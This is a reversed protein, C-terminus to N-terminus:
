LSTGGLDKLMAHFEAESLVAVGLQQAKTLKSGAEEGALLYDTKKSVSASVKGGNREILAKAEQRTYGSLTGTLVFTKGSFAAGAEEVPEEFNLGAARLREILTRSQENRFYDTVSEAMVGGFGDIDSVEEGSAALIADMTRFRRALLQAAREGINRIGLGFLLRSLPNQRSKAIAEVLNRASTEAFRELGALQEVTLSYLDAPSAVLGTEVLQDVAAPGLGEIDMAGRSAFHILNRRLTAPCSPNICRIVADERVTESHCVPCEMPIFYPKSGEAHSVSRLVEPIIEGAKRVLITDGIRLDKETIFDQNHLVARSVTTGALTIPDFSATPTCAGTRGVQIVIERLVTEKEEPPYKFAVAWRPFKATSGLAERQSFSDVKIVAGDIDFSYEGRRAGIRRVEEVAEEITDFRRYSPIVRFGLSRLLDLSERHGSVERGEIQQLNFVFIDLRRAATVRPDKQRLGGAAANRPNKFPTEENEIQQAVLTEFVDRPMFVEGRVELYPLKEALTMPVSRITKLNLTVDEGVFGNGRTSGRVFIGDRYELSVSLGDIKPEVVFAADPVAEKCRRGFDYLEEESFVDQLSGMQVTHTVKEFTNFLGEDGIRQTPSDPAIADPHQAEISKLEQMLSDYEYDSIEPADLTYYLRSHHNLEKVLELYRQKLADTM